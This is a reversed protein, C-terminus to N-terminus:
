KSEKIFNGRYDFVIEIKKVKAKYTINGSADMSKAATKISQGNRNHILYQLAAPPLQSDKIIEDTELLRGDKGFLASYERKRIKFEAEFNDIEKQKRWKIDTATPFNQKMSREVEVSCKQATTMAISLLVAAILM